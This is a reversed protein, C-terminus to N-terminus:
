YRYRYPRGYGYYGYSYPRYYYGYPRYYSRYGHYPYYGRRRYYYGAKKVASDAVASRDISLTPMAANAQGSVALLGVSALVASLIIPLHRMKM